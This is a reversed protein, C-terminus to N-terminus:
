LPHRLTPLNFMQMDPCSQAVCFGTTFVWSFRQVFTLVLWTPDYVFPIVEGLKFDSYLLWQWCNGLLHATCPHEAPPRDM